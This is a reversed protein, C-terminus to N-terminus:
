EINDYSARNDYLLKSAFINHSPPAKKLRVIINYLLLSYAFYETTTTFNWQIM